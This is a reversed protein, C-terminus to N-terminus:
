VSLLSPSGSNGPAFPDRNTIEIHAALLEFDKANRAEVHITSGGPDRWSLPLGRPATSGHAAFGSTERRSRTPMRRASLACM